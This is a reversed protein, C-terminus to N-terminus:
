IEEFFGVAQLKAKLDKIDEESAPKAPFVTEGMDFGLIRLGSKWYDINHGLFVSICADLKNQNDRAGKMDGATFCDYIKCALKPMINYTTGIAGDAGMSLGCLMTEDPGNLVNLEPCNYTIKGFNFYDPISMKIGAINDIADVKQAFRVPDANLMATVYAYVPHKSRKAVAKYFEVNEDENYYRQLSPPLSAIAEIDLTNAHDILEMVEDYHGAGVHAMIKGRGANAEVVAELMQKRTKVPLTLCEGTNGCVYFGKVGKELHYDVLKKVADKKVNLDKDYISFIASYIGNFNGKKM